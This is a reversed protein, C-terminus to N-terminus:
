SILRMSQPSSIVIPGVPLSLATSKQLLNEVGGFELALKELQSILRDVAQNEQAQGSEIYARLEQETRRRIRFIRQSENNLENMLQALFRSQNALLHQSVSDNELLLRIQERFETARNADCLLQFFGEFANGAETKALLEEKEMISQLVKGRSSDEAIMQIRLEQDLHRIEEELLRFDGTLLSCLQYIERIRERKTNDDLEVLIGAQLADIERQIEAKKQELLALRDDTNSSLAVVFDRVADQVIRLHSATTGTAREELQRAFRLATQVADTKTLQNDMERLWGQRIWQNLYTNANTETEWIGLERSREIEAELLLRAQGYEVENEDSFLSEIFALIYPANDARLLSWARHESLLRKYKAQLSQFTM